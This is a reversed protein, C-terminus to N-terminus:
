STLFSEAGHLLNMLLVMGFFYHLHLKDESAKYHENTWFKSFM